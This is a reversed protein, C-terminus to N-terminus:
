SNLGYDAPNSGLHSPVVNPPEVLEVVLSAKDKFGQHRYSHFHYGGGTAWSMSYFEVITHLYNHVYGCSGYTHTFKWWIQPNTYEDFKSIQLDPINMSGLGFESFKWDPEPYAPYCVLGFENCSNEIQDNCISLRIWLKFSCISLHICISLGIHTM